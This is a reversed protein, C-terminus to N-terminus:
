ILIPLLQELGAYRGAELRCDPWIILRKKTVILEYLNFTRDTITCRNGGGTLFGGCFKKNQKHL